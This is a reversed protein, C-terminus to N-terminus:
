EKNHLGFILRTKREKKWEEEERNKDWYKFVYKLKYRKKQNNLFFRNFVIYLLQLLFIKIYRSNPHDIKESIRNLLNKFPIVSVYFSIIALLLKRDFPKSSFFFFSLFLYRNIKLLHNKESLINILNFVRIRKHIREQYYSIRFLNLAPIILNFTFDLIANM